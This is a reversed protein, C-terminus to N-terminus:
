QAFAEAYVRLLATSDPLAAPTDPGASIRHSGPQACTGWWCARSATSAAAARKMSRTHALIHGYGQEVVGLEPLSVTM